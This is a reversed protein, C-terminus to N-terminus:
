LFFGTLALEPVVKPEHTSERVAKQRWFTIKAQQVHLSSSHHDSVHQHWSASRCCFTAVSYCITLITRGFYRLCQIVRMGIAKLIHAIMISEQVEGQNVRGAFFVLLTSM